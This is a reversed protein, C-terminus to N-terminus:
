LRAVSFTADYQGSGYWFAHALPLWFGDWYAYAGLSFGHWYVCAAVIAGYRIM